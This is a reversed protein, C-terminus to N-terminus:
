HAAPRAKQAIVQPSLWDVNPLFKSTSITQRRHGQHAANRSSRVVRADYLVDSASFASMQGAM